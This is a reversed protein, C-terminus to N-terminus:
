FPCGGDFAEKKVPHFEAPIDEHAVGKHRAQNYVGEPHHDCLPHTKNHPFALGKCAEPGSCNCLDRQNYARSEIRWGKRNGCVPCKPVVKYDDPHKNIVRRHRCANHRCRVSFTAM